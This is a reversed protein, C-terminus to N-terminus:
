GRYPVEDAHRTFVIWGAAATALGLGLAGALTAADPAANEYFPRRFADVYLAMPNWAMATRLRPPLISVPYLVPTLYMWAQLLIGYLDSADPFHLAAASVLLSVGFTFATAAALVVPAALLAAGVPRRLVLLLAGLPVLAFGLNVLGTLVTALAPATKPLRVRRWLDIGGAVEAAVSGTSQAFFMWLLLGPFLYAPYAPASASFVHSFVLSLVLMTGAPSLMSWAVGLASRKYRVKVNRSVLAAVLSRGRWLEGLEEIPRPPRAASDWTTRASDIM